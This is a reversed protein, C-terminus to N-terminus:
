PPLGRVSLFLCGLLLPGINAGPLDLLRRDETADLAVFAQDELVLGSVVGDRGLEGLSNVVLTLGENDLVLGLEM